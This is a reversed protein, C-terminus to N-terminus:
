EDPIHDRGFLYHLGIGFGSNRFSQDNFHMYTTLGHRYQIDVAFKRGAQYTVSGTFGANWQNITKNDSIIQNSVAAYEVTGENKLSLSQDLNRYLALGCSLAFRPTIRYGVNPLLGISIINQGYQAEITKEGINTGLGSNVAISRFSNQQVYSVDTAALALTAGAYLRGSLNKQAVVGVQYQMNGVSANGVQAAIGFNLGQQTKREQVYQSHNTEPNMVANGSGQKKEGSEAAVSVTQPNVPLDVPLHASQPSDPVSGNIIPRLINQSAVPPQGPIAPIMSKDTEPTAPEKKLEYRTDKAQQITRSIGTDKKSQGQQLWYIAMGSVFLLVIAAAAKIMPSFPFIVPTESKKGAPAHIDARLKNWGENDPTFEQRGLSEKMWQEVENRNM